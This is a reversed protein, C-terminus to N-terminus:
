TFFFYVTNPFCTSELSAQDSWTAIKFQFLYLTIAVPGRAGGAGCPILPFRNRAPTHRDVSFASPDVVGTSSM